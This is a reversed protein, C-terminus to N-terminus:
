QQHHGAAVPPLRNMASFEIRTRSGRSNSNKSKLSGKKKVTPSTTDLNLDTSLERTYFIRPESSRNVYRWSPTNPDGGGEEAKDEDEDEITLIMMIVTGISGKWKM